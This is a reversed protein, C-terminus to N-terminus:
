KIGDSFMNNDLLIQKLSFGKPTLNKFAEELNNCYSGKSTIKSMPEGVGRKLGEVPRDFKKCTKVGSDIEL